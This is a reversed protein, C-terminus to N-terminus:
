ARSQAAYPLRPRRRERRTAQESRSVARYAAMAKELMMPLASREHERAVSRLPNFVLRVVRANDGFAVPVFHEAAATRPRVFRLVGDLMGFVARATVRWFGRYAGAPTM